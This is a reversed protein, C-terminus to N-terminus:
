AKGAVGLIRLFPFLLMGVLLVVCIIKGIVGTLIFLYQFGFVWSVVGVVMSPVIILLAKKVSMGMLFGIVAGVLAGTWPFPLWVFLPLGWPGYKRTSDLMNGLFRGKLVDQSFDVILPLLVFLVGSNWISLILIISLPHLGLEQGALISATRGSIISATLVAVIELASERQLFWLILLTLGESAFLCCGVYFIFAETQGSSRFM